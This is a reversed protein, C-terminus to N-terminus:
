NCSTQVLNGSIFSTCNVNRSALQNQRSQNWGRNWGEAFRGTACGSLTILILGMMVTKLTKM